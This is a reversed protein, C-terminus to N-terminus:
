SDNGGDSNLTFAPWTSHIYVCLKIFNVKFKVVPATIVVKDLTVRNTGFTPM